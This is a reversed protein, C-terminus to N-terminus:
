ASSTKALITYLDEFQKHAEVEDNFNQNHWVKALKAFVKKDLDLEKCIDNKIGKQLDREADMRTLSISVEKLAGILKLKDTPNLTTSM